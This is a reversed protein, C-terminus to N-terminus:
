NLKIPFSVQLTLNPADPTEGIAAGLNLVLGPGLISLLGVNFAGSLQNSGPITIHNREIPRAWTLQQSFQLSTEPSVAFLLGVSPTYQDGPVIGKHQLATQYTFGATFVLPDQRKTAILGVRFQDFGMGLPIGKDTQGANPEVLGSVFLSPFYDRETMLQKTVDLVPDGYGHADVIQESLGTGAVATTTSLSKFDYPFRLEAQTEWPLGLRILGAAEMQNFRRVSNSM